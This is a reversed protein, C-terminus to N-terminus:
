SISYDTVRLVWVSEYMKLPKKDNM